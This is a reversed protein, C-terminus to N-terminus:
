SVGGEEDPSITSITLHEPVFYKAAVQQLDEVTLNEVQNYFKGLAEPDGSVWISYALAEAIATSSDLGTEFDYKMHSKTDDLVKQNVGHEILDQISRVIEDKVKQLDEAQYLSARISLLYPDRTFISGGGLYRCTREEIVLKKYLDSKQSFLIQSIVALSASEKDQTSFAPSKYNLSIYPPFNANQIHAFRTSTQEPEV